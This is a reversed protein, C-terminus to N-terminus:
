KLLAKSRKSENETLKKKLLDAPTAPERDRRSLESHPSSPDRRERETAPATLPDAVLEVVTVTEEPPKATLVLQQRSFAVRRCLRLLKRNYLSWGLHRQLIMRAFRQVASDYGHSIGEAFWPLSRLRVVLSYCNVEGTAVADGTPVACIGAGIQLHRCSQQSDWCSLGNAYVNCTIRAAHPSIVWFRIM